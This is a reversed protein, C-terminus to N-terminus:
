RFVLGSVEQAEFVLPDNVVTEDVLQGAISVNDFTWYSINAASSGLLRNTWGWTQPNQYDINELRIGSWNGVKTSYDTVADFALLPRVPRPDSVIINRFVLHQATNTTGDFYSAGALGGESTILGNSTSGRNAFVGRAYIIDIDEVVLEQPLGDPFNASRDDTIFDCRLPTGNVDTWYVTRSIGMGRVYTGDDQHRLFCDEIYSNGRVGMADNNTRWSITKVWRIYNSEGVEDKGEIYVGHAAQDAITIGEYVCNTAKSLFMMRVEHQREEETDPIPPILDYWHAMKEGSLTGHGFVRINKSDLDDMYDHFNGYVIADGPIYYSRNNGLRLPDTREWQREEGTPTLSLRHVGPKFYLTSWSGDDAPIAAGPEVEYVEATGLVPKNEIFPNAFITVAHVGDMENRYPFAGEGFFNVENEIARPIDRSDMQGDIDVAILAPQSMTVYVEGNIVECSDAKRVPHVAATTIPGSPAGVKNLRTIKVVIPTYEDMEFNCYTHTWGGVYDTYYAPQEEDALTADHDLCRTFWAFPTEWNTVDQLNAANLESVKQVSFSYYESDALGPVPPYVQLDGEVTEISLRVFFQQHSRSDSLRIRYLGDERLNTESVVVEPSDTEWQGNVFSLAVEEWVDLDLSVLVKAQLSENERLRLEIDFIESGGEAGAFQFPISERSDPDMGLAYELLNSAGDGDEDSLLPFMQAPVERRVGFSRISFLEGGVGNSDVFTLFLDHIGSVAQPLANEFERYRQWDGTHSIDVSGIFRGTASGIRLEVRGGAGPTAGEILFRNSEEGFDFNPYFESVSDTVKEVVRQLEIARTDFLYDGIMGADVFTLYLDQIGSVPASLVIEFKRFDGFGGGTQTVDVVGLLQGTESGLRVEVQGGAQPAAVEISFHNLESGFDLDTFAIWTGDEVFGVVGSSTNGQIPQADPHSELSFDASNLLVGWGMSPFVLFAFSCALYKLILNM